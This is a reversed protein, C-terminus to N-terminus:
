VKGCKIFVTEDHPNEKRCIFNHEVYLVPKMHECIADLQRKNMTQLVPVKNLPGLCLHRKTDRRPLNHLFNDADSAEPKKGNTNRMNGYGSKLRM